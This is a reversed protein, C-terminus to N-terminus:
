RKLNITEQSIEDVATVVRANAQYGRQLVILNTFERAIDVTSFEVAGGIIQGRGGTGPLGIAPLASRASLQFNSNGVAIMSEPNRISAMALQGVAVQEGNSYQALVRGGDGIGVRILQAAPHGDQANAAVASPQSFQTLRPAPGNYLQWTIDLDDAGNALGTVKLQPMADGAAPSVLRGQSDFQITGTVPTFPPNKLDSDPFVLSYQWEGANATKEFRVSITHSGGLSDFVEISTSFTTPPPGATGSADLNLDFSVNRTPAPARLSGVPVIVDTVPQTTDLVGNVENWGQLRFGTATVLQGEKNVQLNGGRTYLVGNTMPDRVVLFGDGQIAVDLPGSSAQIAGQSFQRITVPRAVGFGVQTEGLGAGLSQTVLDSFVVVSAKYGPTNLNALNNGVVDVATAHAGLASLATSFSTFM